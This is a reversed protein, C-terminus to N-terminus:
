SISTKKITLYNYSDIRIRAFNKNIGYKYDNKEGILYNIKDHIRNYFWSDFLELYITGDFINVVGCIKDFSISLPKAGM